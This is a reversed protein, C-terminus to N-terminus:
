MMCGMGTLLEDAKTKQEASLAAYLAGLAPKVDKLAAVRGEMAALHSDLREVPSKAEMAKMMATRTTQMGELNKTLAAAYADWVAKQADTIGLEAKLFAIRGQAHSAMDGGTMMPCQAMMRMMGMGMMGGDMMGMGPMQGPMRGPMQGPMQGQALADGASMAVLAACAGIIRLKKLMRTM